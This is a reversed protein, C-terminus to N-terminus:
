ASSTRSTLPFVSTIDLAIVLLKTQLIYSYLEDIYMFVKQEDYLLFFSLILKWVRTYWEGYVIYLAESSLFYHLTFLIQAFKAHGLHLVSKIIVFYIYVYASAM